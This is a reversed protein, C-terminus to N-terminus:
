NNKFLYHATHIDIGEAPVTNKITRPDQELDVMQDGHSTGSPKQIILLRPSHINQSREPHHKVMAIEGTNLQVLTGLPYIGLLNIFMKLLSPDLGPQNEFLMFKLANHPSLGSGEGEQNTPSILSDYYSTIAIIKSFLDPIVLNKLKPRGKKGDSSLQHHFGSIIRRHTPTNFANDAAFGIIHLYPGWGQRITEPPYHWSSREHFLGCM